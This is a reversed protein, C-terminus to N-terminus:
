STAEFNRLPKVNYRFKANKKWQKKSSTRIKDNERYKLFKCENMM